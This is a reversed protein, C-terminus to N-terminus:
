AIYTPLFTITGHYCFGNLMNICYVLVLPLSFFLLLKDKGPKLFLPIPPKQIKEEKFSIDIFLSWVSFFVGLIAFCLYPYRWGWSSGILGAVFPTLGIGINGAAGHVGLARGYDQVKHTILSNALPHYISGLAGLFTLGVAFFLFNPSFAVLLSAGASGLFCFLYLRKPGFHNYLM